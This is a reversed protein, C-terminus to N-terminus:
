CLLIWLAAILLAMVNVSAGGDSEGDSEDRDRRALKEDDADGHAGDDCDDWCAQDIVKM